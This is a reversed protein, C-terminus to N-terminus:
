TPDIANQDIQFNLERVQHTEQKPMRKTAQSIKSQKLVKLRRLKDPELASQMRTANSSWPHLKSKNGHANEMKSLKSKPTLSSAM